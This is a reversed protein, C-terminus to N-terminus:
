LLGDIEGSEGLEKILTDYWPYKEDAIAHAEAAFLNYMKEVSNELLKHQLLLIDRKEPIGESLRKWAVAMDYDADFVSKTGDYKIHEDFFIHKKITQIEEITMGSSKAILEVDNYNKIKDYYKQAKETRDTEWEVSSIKGGYQRYMGSFMPRKEQLEKFREYESDSLHIPWWLQRNWFRQHGM